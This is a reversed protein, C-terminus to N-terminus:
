CVHYLGKSYFFEPEETIINGHEDEEVFYRAHHNPILYELQITDKEMLKFRKKYATTPEGMVMMYDKQYHKYM